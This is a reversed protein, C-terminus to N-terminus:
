PRGRARTSALASASRDPASKRRSLIRAAAAERRRQEHLQDIADRMLQTLVASKNTDAFAANFAEKVDDPVSFNMTAVPDENNFYEVLQLTRPVETLPHLAPHAFRVIARTSPTM